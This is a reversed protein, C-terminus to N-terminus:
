QTMELILSLQEQAVLHRFFILLLSVCWFLLSFCLNVPEVVLVLVKRYGPIIAHFLVVVM